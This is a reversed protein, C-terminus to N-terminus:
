DLERLDDDHLYPRWEHGLNPDWEHTEMPNWENITDDDRSARLKKREQADNEIVTYYTDGITEKEESSLEDFEEVERRESFQRAPRTARSRRRAEQRATRLGGRLARGVGRRRGLKSAIKRRMRRARANRGSARAAQAARRSCDPRGQAALPAPAALVAACAAAAVLPDRIRSM